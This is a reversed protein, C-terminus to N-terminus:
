RGRVYSAGIRALLMKPGTACVHGREATDLLAMCDTRVNPLHESITLVVQLAWAEAAAATRVSFPPHGGGFAVLGESKSHVVIGFGIARSEWIERDFMSGDIYWTTDSPWIGQMQWLWQFSAERAPPRRLRLVLLGRNELMEKRRSNLRGVALAGKQPM